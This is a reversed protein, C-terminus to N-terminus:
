LYNVYLLDCMAFLEQQLEPVIPCLPCRTLLGQGSTRKNLMTCEFYALPFM